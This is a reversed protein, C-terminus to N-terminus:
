FTDIKPLRWLTLKGTSMLIVLAKDTGAVPENWLTAPATTWAETDPSMVPKVWDTLAIKCCMLWYLLIDAVAGSACHTLIPKWPTVPNELETPAMLQVWKVIQAENPFSFTHLSLLHLCLMFMRIFLM